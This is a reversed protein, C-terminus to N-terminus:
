LLRGSIGIALTLPFERYGQWIYYKENLLNHGEAFVELPVSALTFDYSARFGLVFSADLMKTSALDSYRASLLLLSIDGMFEPTFHYTGDAKLDVPPLNPIFSLSDATGTRLDLTVNAIFEEKEFEASISITSITARDAYHLYNDGVSDSVFLPYYKSGEIDIEPIITLESTATVRGGLDFNAYNQTNRLPLLGYVFHDIAIFGSLNPEEITGHFRAFLSFFDNVKYSAQLDPYLKAIGSSSDDSYQFYHLGLSYALNGSVNKYDAAVIMNYFSRDISDATSGGLTEYSISHNGLRLSGEVWLSGSSLDLQSALKFKLASQVGLLIDNTSFSEFGLSASLPLQSLRFDSVVGADVHDTTRILDPESGGYLFYSQHSYGFDFSNTANMGQSVEYEKEAAAQVGFDRRITYPIFGSTYNGLISGQLLYGDLEDGGSLLYKTTTYSGLSVRGFLSLTNREVLNEGSLSSVPVDMQLSHLNQGQFYSSDIGVSQKQPTPLEVQAKGTIVFEPVDMKPLATDSKAPVIRAPSGTVPASEIGQAHAMAPLLLSFHFTFLLFYFVSLMFSSIFSTPMQCFTSRQM